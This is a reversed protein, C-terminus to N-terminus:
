KSGFCRASEPGSKKIYRFICFLFFKRKRDRVTRKGRLDNSMNSNLSMRSSHPSGSELSNQRVYPGSAPGNHIALGSKYTEVTRYAENGALRSSSMSDNLPDNLDDRYHYGDSYFLSFLGDNKQSFKSKKESFYFVKPDDRYRDTDNYYLSSIM